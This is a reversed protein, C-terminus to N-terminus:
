GRVVHGCFNCGTAFAVKKGVCVNFIGGVHACDLHLCGSSIEVSPCTRIIWGSDMLVAPFLHIPGRWKRLARSSGWASLNDGAELSRRGRDLFEHPVRFRSGLSDWAEPLSSRCVPCSGRYAGVANCDTPTQQGNNLDGSRYLLAM